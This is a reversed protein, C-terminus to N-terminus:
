LRMRTLGAFAAGVAFVIVAAGVFVAARDASHHNPDLPLSARLVSAPDARVTLAQPAAVKMQTQLWAIQRDTREAGEICADRLLDDRLALAAQLCSLWSLKAQQALLVTDQLDRLLGFGGARPQHYLAGRLLGADITTSAGYRAIAAEVAHAKDRSWRALRESTDRIEPEQAHRLHLLEFGGALHLEASRLLDLYRPLNM